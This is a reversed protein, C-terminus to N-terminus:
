GYNMGLTIFMYTKYRERRCDHIATSLLVWNIVNSSCLVLIAEILSEAWEDGFDTSM